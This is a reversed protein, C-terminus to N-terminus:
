KQRVLTGTAPDIVWNEVQGGGPAAAGGDVRRDKIVLSNEASDLMESINKFKQQAVGLSDTLKISNNIMLDLKVKDIRLGKSGALARLTQIASESWAGFAAVQEQTQFVKNLPTTLATVARGGPGSALLPTVQDMIKQQNAKANDIEKLRDGTEKDVFAVGLKNAAARAKERTDGAAYENAVIYAHGARTHNVDEDINLPENKALRADLLAQANAQAIPDPTPLKPKARDSVNQGQFFYDGGGPKPVFVGTVNKGDLSFEQNQGNPQPPEGGKVITNGAIDVLSETGTLKERKGGSQIIANTLLKTAEPTKGAAEWSDLYFKGMKPDLAGTSLAAQATAYFADPSYGHQTAVPVFLDALGERRLKKTEETTHGATAELTKIDASTKQWANWSGIAAAKQEPDTMGNIMNNVQDPTMIGTMGPALATGVTQKVDREHAVEAAKDQNIKLADAALQIRQQAEQRQMQMNQLQSVQALTQMPNAPQVPQISGYINPDIPM